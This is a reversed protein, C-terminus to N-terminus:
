NWTINRIIQSVTPQSIGFQVALDIQKTGEAALLRILDATDKSIIPIKGRRINAAHTKAELHDENVCARQDCLHDIVLGPPVKGYKKEYYLVHAQVMKGNTGDYNPNTAMGYGGRKCGAWIHCPTKYGRDEITFAIKLLKPM